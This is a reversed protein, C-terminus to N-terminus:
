NGGGGEARVEGARGFVRRFLRRTAAFGGAGGVVAALGAVLTGVAMMAQAWAAWGADKTAAALERTAAAQERQASAQERQASALVAAGERHDGALVEAARMLHEGLVHAVGMDFHVDGHVPANIEPM